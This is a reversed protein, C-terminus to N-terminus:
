LPQLGGGGWATTTKRHSEHADIGIGTNIVVV